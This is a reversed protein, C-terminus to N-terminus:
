KIRTADKYSNLFDAIIDERKIDDLKLSNQPNQIKGEVELKLKGKDNPLYIRKSVFLGENEDAINIEYVLEKKKNHRIVLAAWSKKSDIECDRKYRKLEDVLDEIAPQVEKKMFRKIAKRKEEKKEELEKKTKKREMFHEDLEVKWQEAM